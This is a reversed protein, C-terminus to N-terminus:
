SLYTLVALVIDQGFNSGFMAVLTGAGAVLAILKLTILM